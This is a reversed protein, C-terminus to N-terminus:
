QYATTWIRAKYFQAGARTRDASQSFRVTKNAWVRPQTGDGRISVVEGSSHKV